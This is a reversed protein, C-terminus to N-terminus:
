RVCYVGDITGIKLQMLGSWAGDWKKFIRKLIIRGYASQDEMHDREL